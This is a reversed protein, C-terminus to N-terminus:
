PRVRDKNWQPPTANLIAIAREADGATLGCNFDTHVFPLGFRSYGFDEDDLCVVHEAEPHDALWAVIQEARDIFNTPDKDPGVHGVVVKGGLGGAILGHTRLLYSFGRDTMDGGLIMYRWASSIVLRADTERIIRSLHDICERRILCSQAPEDWDHGNLVGDIDLFVLKM